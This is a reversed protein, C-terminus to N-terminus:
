GDHANRSRKVFADLAADASEPDFDGAAKRKRVEEEFLKRQEEPTLPNQKKPM